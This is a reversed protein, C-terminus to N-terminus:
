IVWFDTATLLTGPAVQAFLIAAGAGTGDADFRLDGNARDYIVRDEAGLAVKGLVFEAATLAGGAAEGLPYRRGTQVNRVALRYSWNPGTDDAVQVARETVDRLSTASM